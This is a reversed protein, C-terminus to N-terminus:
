PMTVTHSTLVRGTWDRGALDVAVPGTGDDHVTLTGFQGAGPHTGESYPGGKVGGPRDLAAAHLVPFGRGSPGYGSHAGDDIAIMHADGSLMVLNDVGAREISEAIHRREDPYGGWDDRGREAPAIWPNPNVWIVVAHTRSATVLERELWQLQTAGLMSDATRESRSDTMIVRARGVTFAQYIAADGDGAPIPYHPVDERFAARAASRSPSDADGDNPGYDHDDWVYAVPLARYLASQAPSTLVGNYAARYAAVDDVGINEDHLDGTIVYLLPDLARIADFVAGDSGTRACAGTAITFSAAGDPFTRVSGSGRAQDRHDDVVVEYRYVTGPRLDTVTWSVVGSEPVAVAPAGAAGAVALGAEDADDDAVQATVRFSTATVAGSWVWEVRDAALATTASEPHAPGFYHDYAAVAGAWGAVLLGATVAAVVTIARRTRTHQWVVWFLVAPVLFAAGILLSVIPRYTLASFVGLGVGTLALLLAATAEWHWATLLALGGLALLGLQAPREVSALMGDGEPNRPLGVTLALVTFVALVVLTWARATRRLVREARPRVSVLGHTRGPDRQWPCGHCRAHWRRHLLAWGAVLVFTAAILVGGVADTLWHTGIHLRYLVTTVLAAGMLIAAVVGVWRRRTLVVLAVPVLAAIVTAQVLHGSPFSDVRGALSGDPPRARGVLEKVALYTGWSGAVAGIYALAFVPCRLTSVGVVAALVAAVEPKGAVDLPLQGLWAWGAVADGAARDLAAVFEPPAMAFLTVIVAAVAAVVTAWALLLRPLEAEAEATSSRGLPTNVLLWTAGRPPDPWALLIRASVAALVAFGGALVLAATWLWGVGHVYGGARFYNATAGILVYAAVAIGSLSTLAYFVRPRLSSRLAARTSRGTTVHAAVARGAIDLRRDLGPARGQRTHIMERVVTVASFLLGAGMIAPVFVQRDPDLGSGAGSM